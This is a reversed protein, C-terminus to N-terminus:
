DVFTFENAALLMQAYRAWPGPKKSAEPDPGSFDRRSNWVGFGTRLELEWKFTDSNDNERCDAVFDLCEGKRVPIGGLNTALVGGAEAVWEGLVGRTDSILRVRVGDGDPSPKELSGTLELVGSEPSKWRRIPSRMPDRGTHGGSANLSVFGLVKDPYGNGGQWGSKGFVPLKQFIMRGAASDWGGYGYTWVPELSETPAQKQLFALGAEVEWAEADRSFVRHYLDQVQWESFDPRSFAEAAVTARARDLVFPSNLMFLAQQPVTTQHRLPTSTDPNAFDFTRFFGPLNQRDVFGYVTRRLSPKPGELEVPRGGASHDLEGAVELLSDRLAEFELRKRNMRWLLRNEPDRQAGEPNSDSVQRYASSKLILRHLDKVSWGNEMFGHALWDLLEPHTPADGKTGFDGPTRVLGAGFHHAWVRNVWVRATLPNARDTIARALELRGSGETFPKPNGGSLVSLFRRPVVEGPRSPNGRIFVRSNVPETKDELVMARPPADPGAEVRVLKNRLATAENRVRTTGLNGRLLIDVAGGPLISLGGTGQNLLLAIEAGRQAHFAALEGRIKARAETYAPAPPQDSIEPLDSVEPETSSVFVGHLAYYDKQPIPDFKHDHCRACATTMGLLGRSVVDIRDDIVDHVNNLFRRGVTLFGLAALHKRDGGIKDAAIQFELFRNYPLDANFAEIVWDRYTYSFPFKREVGGALYGRTDAYRAVDLWHRGWREGYRPSALLRDVVRGYAADEESTDTEYDRIEALTPPLGTLDFTVRRILTRRSARVSGKIGQKLLQAGLFGDIANGADPWARAGEPVVPNLVPQFAWHELAAKESNSLKRTEGEPWPVGMRVWETLAAIQPDSLKPAKAPMKSDGEHRISKILSSVEPKGPVVVAGADGGKLVAERSDLRLEAKQKEVGHCNFCQDALVPRVEREFFEVQEPTAAALAAMPFSLLWIPNLWHM